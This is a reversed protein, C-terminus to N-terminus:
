ILCKSCKRMSRNDSLKWNDYVSLFCINTIGKKLCETQCFSGSMEVQSSVVDDDDCRCMLQPFGVIRRPEELNLYCGTPVMDPVRPLSWLRCHAWTNWVLRDHCHSLKINDQGQRTLISLNWLNCNDWFVCVVVLVGSLLWSLFFLERRCRFGIASVRRSLSLVDAFTIWVDRDYTHLPLKILLTGATQSVALASTPLTPTVPRPPSNACKLGWMGKTNTLWIPPAM